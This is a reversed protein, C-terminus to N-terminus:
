EEPSPAAPEIRVLLDGPDVRQDAAVPVAAVRGALGATVESEMKMSELILLPDGAAVQDGEAVLVKVVRGPMPAEIEPSAEGELAAEEQALDADTVMYRTGAIDVEGKGGPGMFALGAIRRGAGVLEIGRGRRVVRVGPLELRLEEGDEKEEYVTIDYLGDDRRRAPVVRMRRGGVMYSFSSM